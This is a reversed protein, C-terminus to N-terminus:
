SKESLFINLGRLELEKLVIKNKESLATNFTVDLYKLSNIEILFSIDIENDVEFTLEELQKLQNLLRWNADSPINSATLDLRKLSKLTEIGSLCKINSNMVQCSNLNVLGKVFEFNEIGTGIFVFIDKLNIINEAFKIEKLDPAILSLSTLSRSKISELFHGKHHCSLDLTILKEMSEINPLANLNESSISLHQIFDFFNFKPLFKFQGKFEVKELNKIEIDKVSKFDNFGSLALTKIKNLEGLWEFNKLRHNHISIVHEDKLLEILAKDNEIKENIPFVVELRRIGNNTYIAKLISLELENEIKIPLKVATNDILEKKLFLLKEEFYKKKLQSFDVKNFVKNYFIGIEKRNKGQTSLEEFVLVWIEKWAAEYTSNVLYQFGTKNDQLTDLNLSIFYACFYEQFSLHSFGFVNEGDEVGKPILFGTRNQLYDVLNNSHESLSDVDIIESLQLELFLKLQSEKVTFFSSNRNPKPLRERAEELEAEDFSVISKEPLCLDGAHMFYALKSLWNKIDQYDYERGLKHELRRAKDMSELYTGVIRQYLEARGHPLRGRRWQIFCILNLLVPIRSLANIQILQASINTINEIFEKRLEMKPPLYKKVWNESFARRQEPSFPALYLITPLNLARDLSVEMDNSLENDASINVKMGKSFQEISYKLPTAAKISKSRKDKEYWFNQNNFGVIRSTMLLRTKPYERLLQKIQKALWSTLEPSIEDLGDILFFVQGTTLIDFFSNKTSQENLILNFLAGGQQMFILNIFEENSLESLSEQSLKRVTLLLPFLPGLRKKAYNDSWHCLSCVLWKILTSKGVGPDGLLVTRPNEVILDAVGDLPLSRTAEVDGDVKALHEATIRTKSLKPIVYLEDIHVLKKDGDSDDLALGQNDLHREEKLFQDLYRYLPSKALNKFDSVSPEIFKPLVDSFLGISQQTWM